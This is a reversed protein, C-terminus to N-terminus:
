FQVERIQHEVIELNWDPNDKLWGRVIVKHIASSDYIEQLKQRREVPDSPLLADTARSPKSPVDVTQTVGKPENIPALTQVKVEHTKLVSKAWKEWEDYISAALYRDSLDQRALVGAPKGTMEPRKSYKIKNTYWEVIEPIPEGPAIEWKYKGAVQDFRNNATGAYPSNLAIAVESALKQGETPKDEQQLSDQWEEAKALITSWETQVPGGPERKTIYSRADSTPVERKSWSLMWQRIYEIFDPHIGNPGRKFRYPPLRGMALQMEQIEAPTLASWSTPMALQSALQRDSNTTLSGASSNDEIYRSDFNTPTIERPNEKYTISQRSENTDVEVQVDFSRLEETDVEEETTQGVQIPPLWSKSPTLRYNTTAGARSEFHLLNQTILTQLSSKVEAVSMQCAIAMNEESEWAEGLSARRAIRVYLRFEYPDLGYDDLKSDIFIPLNRDDIIKASDM